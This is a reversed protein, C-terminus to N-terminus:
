AEEWMRVLDTGCVLNTRNQGRNWKSIYCILDGIDARAWDRRWIETTTVEQASQLQSFRIFNRRAHGCQFFTFVALFFLRTLFRVRSKLIARDEDNIINDM